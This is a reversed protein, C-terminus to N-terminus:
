ARHSWASPHTVSQSLVAELVGAVGAIVARRGTDAGSLRRELRHRRRAAPRAPIAPGPERNTMGDDARASGRPWGVPDDSEARLDAIALGAALWGLTVRDQGRRKALKGIGRGAHSVTV